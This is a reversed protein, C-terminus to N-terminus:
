LLFHYVFLLDISHASIMSAVSMHCDESQKQLWSDSVVEGCLYRVSVYLVKCHDPSKLLNRVFDKVELYESVM